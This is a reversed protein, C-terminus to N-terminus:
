IRLKPDENVWQLIIEWTQQESQIFKYYTLLGNQNIHFESTEDYHKSLYYFIRQNENSSVLEATREDFTPRLLDEIKSSTQIDPVVVTTVDRNNAVQMITQGQFCRMLPFFVYSAPLELTENQFIDGNIKRLIHFNKETFEYVAEIDNEEKQFKITSSQFEGNTEFTQVSITTKFPTADRLSKTIKSGDPLFEIDFSETIGTPEGNLFYNYVGSQM